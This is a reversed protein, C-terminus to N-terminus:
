PRVPAPTPAPAPASPTYFIASADSSYLAAPLVTSPEDIAKKIAANMIGYAKRGAPWLPTLDQNFYEELPMWKADAIESEQIAIAETDAGDAATEPLDMLFIFFIDSKGNLYRCAHRFLVVGRPVAKVGTEEYLERVCAEQLGEGADIAGTPMKWFGTGRLIGNKEQVVLMKNRARNLVLCGVGLYSSAPAPLTNPSNLPLWKTLVLGSEKAASHIEFGQKVAVSSLKLHSSPLTLWVGRRDDKAWAEVSKALRAEFERPDRSLSTGDVLVGDYRDNTHPLIAIGEDGHSVRWSSPSAAIIACASSSVAVRWGLRRWM